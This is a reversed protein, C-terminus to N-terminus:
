VEGPALDPPSIKTGKPEPPTEEEPELSSASAEEHAASVATRGAPMKGTELLCEIDAREITEFDLLTKALLELKDRNKKLLGMSKDFSTTVIEKVEEDITVAVEESYAWLTRTLKVPASGLCIIRRPTERSRFKPQDHRERTARVIDNASNAWPMYTNEAKTSASYPNLM